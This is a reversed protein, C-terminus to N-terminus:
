RTSTANQLADAGKFLFPTARLVERGAENDSLGSGGIDDHYPFSSAAPQCIRKHLDIRVIEHHLDSARQQDNGLGAVPQVQSTDQNGPLVGGFCPAREAGRQRQQM